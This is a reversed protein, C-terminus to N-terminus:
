SKPARRRPPVQEALARKLLTVARGLEDRDLRGIPKGFHERALREPDTRADRAMALVTDLLYRPVPEHRADAMRCVPFKEAAAALANSAALARADPHEPNATGVGAREVGLVDLSVVAVLLHSVRTSSVLRAVWGPAAEDLREVLTRHHWESWRRGPTNAGM